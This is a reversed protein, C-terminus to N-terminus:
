FAPGAMRFDVDLSSPFSSQLKSMAGLMSTLCVQQEMVLKTHFPLSEM